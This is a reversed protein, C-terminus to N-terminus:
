AVIDFLASSSLSLSLSPGFGFPGLGVSLHISTLSSLSGGLFPFLFDPVTSLGLLRFDPILPSPDPPSSGMSMPVSLSLPLVGLRDSSLLEKAGGTAIVVGVTIGAGVSSKRSVETDTVEWLLVQEEGSEM